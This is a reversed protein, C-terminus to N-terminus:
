PQYLEASALTSGAYPDGGGALLVRGDSLLTATQATCVATMSGTPSFTGTTPDYLEASALVVDGTGNGEGGAILVRGSPLLTATHYESATTMSGTPSFTGTTPDYLEASALAGSTDGGGAILVRGDSLLTATQDSRATAMSGTPSFTGTAPDYLEASALVDGATPGQGGAILVRGDTLLTATDGARATAMSGTATFAGTAPNYLEASAFSINGPEGGGTILVQGDSLLTATQDERPTAMSGTPSFTGTAPDYLEASALTNCISANCGGYGGAVLVRGNPLLTATQSTRSTDMSGTATFAGTKPGYLEASSVPVADTGEPVTGGTVLVSGDTLLTATDYVRAETM